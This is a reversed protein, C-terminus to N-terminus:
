FLERNDHVEAESVNNWVFVMGGGCPVKKKVTQLRGGGGRAFRKFNWYYLKAEYRLLQNILIM